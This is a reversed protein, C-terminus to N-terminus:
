AFKMLLVVAYLTTFLAATSAIRAVNISRIHETM